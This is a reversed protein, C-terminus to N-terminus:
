GPHSEGRLHSLSLFRKLFSLLSIFVVFSVLLFSDGSSPSCSTRWIVVQDVAHPSKLVGKGDRGALGRGTLSSFSSSASLEQEGGRERRTTSEDSDESRRREM